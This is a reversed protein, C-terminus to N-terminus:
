GEMVGAVESPMIHVREIGREREQGDVSQISVLGDWCELKPTWADSPSFGTSTAVQELWSKTKGM